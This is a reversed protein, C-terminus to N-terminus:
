YCYYVLSFDCIQHESNIANFNRTRPRNQREGQFQTHTVQSAELRSLAVAMIM